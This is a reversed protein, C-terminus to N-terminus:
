ALKRVPTVSGRRLSDRVQHMGVGPETTITAILTGEKVHVGRRISAKNTKLEFTAPGTDQSKAAPKDTSTAKPESPM